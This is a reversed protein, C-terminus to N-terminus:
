NTLNMAYYSQALQSRPSARSVPGEIFQVHEKSSNNEETEFSIPKGWEAFLCWNVWQIVQGTQSFRVRALSGLPNPFEAAIRRLTESPMEIIPDRMLRDIEQPKTSSLLFCIM